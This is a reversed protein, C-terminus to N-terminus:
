VEPDDKGTMYKPLGVMTSKYKIELNMLSRGGELYPLYIYISDVDAKKALIQNM